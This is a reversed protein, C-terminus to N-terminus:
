QFVVMPPLRGKTSSSRCHSVIKAPLRSKTSSSGQMSGLGSQPLKIYGTIFKRYCHLTILVGITTAVFDSTGHSFPFTKAMTPARAGTPPKKQGDRQRSNFGWSFMLQPQTQCSFSKAFVGGVWEFM